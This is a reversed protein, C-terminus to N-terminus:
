ARRSAADMNLHAEGKPGSSLVVLVKGASERGGRLGACGRDAGFALRKLGM